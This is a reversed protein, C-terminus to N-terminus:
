TQTSQHPTAVVSTSTHLIPTKTYWPTPTAIEKESTEPSLNQALRMTTDLDIIAQEYQGLRFEVRSREYYTAPNNANLQIVENYKSLSEQDTSASRAELWLGIENQLNMSESTKADKLSKKMIGLLETSDQQGDINAMTVYLGSVIVPLYQKDEEIRADTFLGIQENWNLSYFLERARFDYDTNQLIGELEFLGALNKLKESGIRSTYFNGAYQSSAVGVAFDFIFVSLLVFSLLGFVISATKAWNKPTNEQVWSANFVNKYIQNRPQLFGNESRVVGSIKLHAKATSCEDDIVKKGTRIDKYTKLVRSLNPSRKTLMDRVFQLNNDQWGQEGEFLQKVAGAVSEETIKTEDKSLHACLRQTLYPHGGTWRFIWELTRAGLHGALPRAEEATFDTLDV